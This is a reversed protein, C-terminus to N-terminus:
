YRLGEEDDSTGVGATYPSSPSMASTSISSSYEVRNFSNNNSYSFDATVDSHFTRICHRKLPPVRENLCESHHM